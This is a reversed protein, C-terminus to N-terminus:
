SIVVRVREATCVEPHLNCIEAALLFEGLPCYVSRYSQLVQLSNYYTVHDSSLSIIQEDLSTLPLFASRECMILMYRPTLPFAIEVGFSGFGVGYLPQQVHPRKVVPTDSTYFHQTTTNDGILWIHNVLTQSLALQIEPNFMIQAHELSAYREDFEVYLEEANLDPYRKALEKLLSKQMDINDKRAEPTRLIQMTLFEAMYWRQEATFHEQKSIADLIGQFASAFKAERVGLEHEVMQLDLAKAIQDADASNIPESEVRDRFEKLIDPHFDYFRLESATDRVTTKFSKGTFKNFTHIIETSSAFKKLYFQPVYHQKKINSM